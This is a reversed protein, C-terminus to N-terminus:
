ADGYPEALGIEKFFTPATYLKPGAFRVAEPADLMWAVTCGTDAPTYSPLGGGLAYAADGYRATMAETITLGPQIRFSVIGRERYEFDLFEALKSFAAKGTAYLLGWGGQDLKLECLINGASSTIFVISGGGQTLMPQLVRQTIHLHNIMLGQMM